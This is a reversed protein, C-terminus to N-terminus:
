PTFKLKTNQQSHLLQSYVSIVTSSGDLQLHDRNTCKVPQFADSEPTNQVSNDSGVILQVQWALYNPV